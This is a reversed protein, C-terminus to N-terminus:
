EVDINNEIIGVSVELAYPLVRGFTGPVVAMLVLPYAQALVKHSTTVRDGARQVCARRHM